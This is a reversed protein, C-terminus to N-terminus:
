VLSKRRYDTLPRPLKKYLARVSERDSLTKLEADTMGIFEIFEVRGNPTDVGKIDPDLVCIFGTLQSKQHVDIGETQGTYLYDYPKFIDGQNVTLGALTQLLNATGIIVEKEVDDEQKKLKYTFEMGFSSTKPNEKLSEDYVDSLGYTVFHWYDGGDYVSIAELPQQGGSRRSSNAGLHRPKKQGPYTAEFTATIAAWGSGKSEEELLPEVQTEVEVVEVAPKDAVASEVTEEISEELVEPVPEVNEGKDKKLFDFLGM